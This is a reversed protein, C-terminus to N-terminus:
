IGLLHSVLNVEPQLKMKARINNRTNEVTRISRNTLLAIDKTTMNLRLFSCIRIESPSLAPNQVLLRASFDQHVQEFRVDFEKWTGKRSETKLDHMINKLKCANEESS